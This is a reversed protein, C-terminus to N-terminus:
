QNPNVSTFRNTSSNLTAETELQTMFLGGKNGEALHRHRCVIYLRTEPAFCLGDFIYVSSLFQIFSSPFLTWKENSLTRIWIPWRLELVCNAASEINTVGVTTRIPMWRRLESDIACFRETAEQHSRAWQNYNLQDACFHNKSEKCFHM